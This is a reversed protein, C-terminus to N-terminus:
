ILHQFHGGEALICAEVRKRMSERVRYFIGPTNRITECSDTIRIKLEEVTHIPTSYVLTKLHGWLFFDLCNLDPSRPPWPQPGSRGIWRNHFNNNLYECALASFHAPAGDHMFWLRNRLLVPIDEMLVPLENELFQRYNQGNLRGDFFYPGILYDGCIGAWVNVSFQQQHRSELIEHPNEEAWFHNNHFNQIATRSFNAEDTYLINTAFLGNENIKGLFWESFNRRLPFDRPLLAQVRQVHYPYLLFDHLIRWVLVHSINLNRSIKRTSLNPDEEISNLVEEEIEQTRATQHSGKLHNDLDFNGKECLRRHINSFIRRDPINRNPFREEYLRKAKLANGDALGYMYHMDAYESNTFLVM